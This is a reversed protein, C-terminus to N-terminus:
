VYCSWTQADADFFFGHEELRQQHLASPITESSPGVWLQDHEAQISLEDFEIEELTSILKAGDIFERVTM